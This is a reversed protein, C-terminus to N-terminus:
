RGGSGGGGASGTKPGLEVLLRRLAADDLLGWFSEDAEPNVVRARLQALLGAREGPAAAAAAPVAEAAPPDAGAGAAGAAAKGRRRRSRPPPADAWSDDPLDDDGGDDMAVAAPGVVASPAGAEVM